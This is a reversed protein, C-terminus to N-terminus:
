AAVRQKKEAKAAARKMDKVAYFNLEAQVHESTHSASLRWPQATQM